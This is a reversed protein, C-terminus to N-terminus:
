YSRVLDRPACGWRVGSGDNVETLLLVAVGDRLVPRCWDGVRVIEDDAPDVAVGDRQFRAVGSARLAGVRVEGRMHRLEGLELFRGDGGGARLGVAALAGIVGLGSGGHASLHVGAERALLEADHRPVVERKARGGFAVIGAGM